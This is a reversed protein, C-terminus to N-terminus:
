VSTPTTHDETGLTLDPRRERRGAERLGAFAPPTNVEHLLHLDIYILDPEGEARRVVHDQWIKDALTLAM